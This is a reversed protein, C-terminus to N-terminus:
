NRRGGRGGRKGETNRRLSSLRDESDKLFGSMMADFDSLPKSGAANRNNDPRHSPRNFPKRPADDDDKDKRFQNGRDRPTFSRQPAAQQQAKDVAQRLSLSIKGDPAITLVKVEVEQGVTLVSNIDKIYGDSIESIHILGTKGEPLEVFAGFNTIGTVKGAVKQGVEISM